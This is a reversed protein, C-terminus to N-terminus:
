SRSKSLFFGKGLREWRRKASNRSVRSQCRKKLPTEREGELQGRAGGMQFYVGRMQGGLVFRKGEKSEPVM